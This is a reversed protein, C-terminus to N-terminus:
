KLHHGPSSNRGGAAARDALVSQIIQELGLRPAFGIVEQVRKLSPVRRLM